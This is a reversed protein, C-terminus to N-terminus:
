KNYNLFYNKFREIFNKFNNDSSNDENGVIKLAIANIRKVFSSNPHLLTIPKQLKVSEVLLKSNQIYGLNILEFNLFRKTARNLKEYVEKAEYYNDVKNVVLNIKNYSYNSIILTKILAYADTLSTPEPTTVLIVENAAEIFSLVTKSIGAGTDILIFDATESLKELQSTLEYLEREKIDILEELASGGAIIKLGCPGETIIELIDKEKKIVDAITHKPMIGLAIDVNALGIDADFIVTKYGLKNLSIALNITFNTKGVGGKGSTIALVRTKSNPKNETKMRNNKYKSVMQRLRYAQDRM